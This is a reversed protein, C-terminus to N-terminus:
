ERLGLNLPHELGHLCGPTLGALDLDSLV